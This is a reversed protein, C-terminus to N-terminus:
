KPEGADQPLHAWVRRKIIHRYHSLSIGFLREITAEDKRGLIKVMGMRRILLVDAETLKAQFHKEGKNQTTLRTRKGAEKLYDCGYIQTRHRGKVWSDHMNDKHTGVFLHKPNVCSPVDCTHCVFLGAPIPERFLEYSVRHAGISRGNHQIVGYGGHRTAGTWLWCGSESVRYSTDFRTRTDPYKM